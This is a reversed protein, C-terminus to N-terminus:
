PSTNVNTGDADGVTVVFLAVSVVVLPAVSLASTVALPELVDIEKQTLEDLTRVPEASDVHANVKEPVGEDVSLLTVEVALALPRFGEVCYQYWPIAVFLV